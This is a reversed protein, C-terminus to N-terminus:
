SPLQQLSELFFGCFHQSRQSQAEPSQLRRLEVLGQLKTVSGRQVPGMTAKLLLLQMDCETSILRQFFFFFLYVVFLFAVFVVRM